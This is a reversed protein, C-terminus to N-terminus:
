AAEGDLSPAEGRVAGRTVAEFLRNGAELEALGVPGLDTFKLGFWRGKANSVPTSTLLYKHAFAPLLAGNPLRLQHQYTVWERAFTHATSSCSLAYARGEILLFFQRTDVITNGNSKRAQYIKEVGAESAIRSELDAPPHDHETVFGQRLPLWEVWRRVMECPIVEIGNVGSRIPQLAGRLFFDGAEADQIYKADRKECQPSGQQLLVVRPILQDEAKTSVGRGAFRAATDFWDTPLQQPQAAAPMTKQNNMLDGSEQSSGAHDALGRALLAARRFANLQCRRSIVHTARGM